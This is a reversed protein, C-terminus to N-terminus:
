AEILGFKQARYKFKPRTLGLLRAARSCNGGARRLAEKLLAEEMEEWRIGGEPLVYPTAAEPKIRRPDPRQPFLDGKGIKEGKGLICAMELRNRLERVNGSWPHEELARRAEPTFATFSKAYKQALERLFENALLLIDDRREALSPLAIEFGNIRYYLDERFRGERVWSELPKNTAALIRVDCRKLDVAGLPLYEGDQLVRLLKAQFAPSTEAIEDLFVTGGRARELIGQRDEDAGTFAGKRYGFLESELLTDPIASCNIPFFPLHRRRSNFHIAQAFLEKGTGSEGTILVTADTVAVQSALRVAELFTHSQGLLRPFLFRRELDGRSERSQALLAAVHLARQLTMELQQIQFPKSLVDLVGRRLAEVAMQVTGYASMLVIQASPNEKLLDPVMTLGDGDPLKYDLLIVRPHERTNAELGERATMAAAASVPYQALVEMLLETTDPQDEIILVDTPM